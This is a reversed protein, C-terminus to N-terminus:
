VYHLRGKGKERDKDFFEVDRFVYYSTGDGGEGLEKEKLHTEVEM